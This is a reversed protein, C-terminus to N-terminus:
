EDGGDKWRAVRWVTLALLLIWSGIVVVLTHTPMRGRTPLRRMAGAGPNKSRPPLSRAIRVFWRRGKFASQPLGTAGPASGRRCGGIGGEPSFCMARHFAVTSDMPESRAPFARLATKRGRESADPVSGHFFVLVPRCDISRRSSARATTRQFLSTDRTNRSLSFRAPKLEAPAGRRRPKSRRASPATTM